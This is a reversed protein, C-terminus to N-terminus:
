RRRTPQAPHNRLAFRLAKEVWQDRSLGKIRRRADVSEILDEPLRVNMQKRAPPTDDTAATM